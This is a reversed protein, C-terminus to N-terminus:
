KICLDHQAHREIVRLYIIKLKLQFKIKNYIKFIESFYKTNINCNKNKM